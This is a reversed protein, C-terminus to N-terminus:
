FNRSVGLTYVRDYFHGFDVSLSKGVDATLTYKDNMRFGVGISGNSGAWQFLQDHKYWLEDVFPPNFDEPFRLGNHTRKRSYVVHAYWQPSILWILELNLLSHDVHRDVEGAVFTKEMRNYAISANWILNQAPAPFRGGTNVGFSLRWQGTGAQTETFLPYDHSPHYFGVFPTILFPETRWLYRLGVGWDAWNSHYVGDDLFREGHPNLLTRPDHPFDGKYRNSKYPIGVSLALRDTLGYDLNLYATRLTIEGFEQVPGGFEVPVARRTITIQQLSLNLSGHGKASVSPDTIVQAMAHQGSWGMILLGTLLSGCERQMALGRPELRM